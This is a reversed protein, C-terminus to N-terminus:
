RKQLYNGGYVSETEYYSYRPDSMPTFPLDQTLLKRSNVWPEPSWPSISYGDLVRNITKETYFASDAICYLPESFEVQSRFRDLMAPLVVKDNDSGSLLRMFLPVGIQNVILGIGFRNLEVPWRKPIGKRSSM